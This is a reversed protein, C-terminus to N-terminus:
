FVRNCLLFRPHRNSKGSSEKPAPTRDASANPATPLIKLIAARRATATDSAPKALVSGTTEIERNTTM